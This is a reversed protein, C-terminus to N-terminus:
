NWGMDNVIGTGSSAPAAHHPAVPARHAQTAQAAPRSAVPRVTGPPAPPSAPVASASASAVPSAGAAEPAASASAVPAPSSVARAASTIPEPASAVGAAAAASPVAPLRRSRLVLGGAVALAVLAGVLGLAVGTRAKASFRPQSAAWNGATAAAPAVPEADAPAAPAGGVLAAGRAATMQSPPAISSTGRETALVRDASRAGDQSAFPRLAAALEGATRYRREKDRELCRAIVESLGPPVDPRLTAALPATQEAISFCLEGFSEGSFPPAGTIVRFLIVGLSWIDSQADAAKASRIQEPSMYLPTGFLASTQTAVAQVNPLSAVKAVGFDLVKIVHEGDPRIVLFLNSPKLDRHVIGLQHAQVLAEMAQLIYDVAVVPQLTGEREVLNDLDEGQLLEMAIFLNGDPLRDVDFVRVVHEGHIRSAARAENIFRQVLSATRASDDLLLKIAVEHGLLTHEAAFVAGMGGRGLLRLIRYKGALVDGASLSASPASV